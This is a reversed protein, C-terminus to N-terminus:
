EKIMGILRIKAYGTSNNGNMTGNGNFNPMGIITTGKTNTWNYGQGDIMKTNTFKYNSYHISQGTHAGSSNIADCGNHGSIFSAKPFSSRRLLLAAQSHTTM